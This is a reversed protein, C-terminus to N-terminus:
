RPLLVALLIIGAVILFVIKFWRPAEKRTPLTEAQPSVTRTGTGTAVYSLRTGPIRTTTQLEGDARKTLRFPGVGLSKSIGKPTLTFRLPGWEISRRFRMGM